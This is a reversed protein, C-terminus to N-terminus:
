TSKPAYSATTPPPTQRVCLSCVATLPQPYFDSATANICSLREFPCEWKYTTTLIHYNYKSAIPIM